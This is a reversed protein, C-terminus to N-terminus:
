TTTNCAPLTGYSVVDRRATVVGPAFRQLLALARAIGPPIITTQDARIGAILAHIVPAPDGIMWDPLHPAAVGYAPAALIPTRTFFPYLASVGVGSGRLEAALADSFGRLGFKATAYPVLQGAGILGAVSVINVIRGSRRELMAPLFLATLRMPALLNIAMLQEWAAPPVATFPGSLAIGANNVLMDIQPTIVMAQRYLHACGAQDSLDAALMGIIRGPLAPTSHAVSSAAAHLAPLTRDSLLLFSGAQLFQRIMERGLGGGAGTILITAGNLNTTM